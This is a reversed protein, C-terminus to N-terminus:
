TIKSIESSSQAYKIESPGNPHPVIGMRYAPLKEHSVVNSLYFDFICEDSKVIHKVRHEYGNWMANRNHPDFQSILM